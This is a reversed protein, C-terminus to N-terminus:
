KFDFTTVSRNSAGLRFNLIMTATTQYGINTIAAIEMSPKPHEAAEVLSESQLPLLYM